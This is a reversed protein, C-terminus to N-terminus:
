YILLAFSRQREEPFYCCDFTLNISVLDYRRQNFIIEASSLVWYTDFLILSNRESKLIHFPQIKTQRLLHHNRRMIVNILHHHHLM